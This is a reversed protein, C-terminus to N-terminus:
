VLLDEPVSRLRSIAIIREKVNFRMPCNIACDKCSVCPNRTLGSESLVQRAAWLNKYGYAYMHSRMLSPIDLAERCSSLCTGCQQCYLGEMSKKQSLKLDVKEEPTLTLDEMVSLDLNLQDFSVM